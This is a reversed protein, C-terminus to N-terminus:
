KTDSVEWHNLLHGPVVLLTAKSTLLSDLHEIKARNDLIAAISSNPKATANSFSKKASKVQDNKFLVLLTEFSSLLEIAALHLDHNVPNCHIANEFCLRIDAEFLTFDSTYFDLKVRKLIEEFCIPTKIINVYDPFSAQISNAPYFFCHSLSHSQELKRILRNLEPRQYIPPTEEKWYALFINEDRFEEISNSSTEDNKTKSYLGFTQLILSLVTISKGLGPEDCLFGGRAAKRALVIDHYRGQLSTQYTNGNQQDLRYRRHRDKRSQLGVSVGGTIARHIDGGYAVSSSADNTSLCHEESFEIIERRRMYELSTIQHQFLRLKLGPVVARLITHLYTCSLRLCDLSKARLFPSLHNVLVDEPLSNMWCDTNNSTQHPKWIQNSTGRIRIYLEELSLKKTPFLSIRGQILTGNNRLHYRSSNDLPIPQRLRIMIEHDLCDWDSRLLSYLLQVSPPLPKSNRKPKNHQELEATDLSPISFTILLAAVHPNQKMQINNQNDGVVRRLLLQMSEIQIHKSCQCTQVLGVMLAADSRNGHATCCYRSHCMDAITGDFALNYNAIELIIRRNEISSSSSSSSETTTTTTTTTTPTFAQQIPKLVLEGRQCPDNPSVSDKEFGSNNSDSFHVVTIWTAEPLKSIKDADGVIYINCDELLVYAVEDSEIHQSADDIPITSPADMRWEINKGLSTTSLDYHTDFM